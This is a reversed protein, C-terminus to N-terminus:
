TQVGTVRQHGVGVTEKEVLAHQEETQSLRPAGTPRPLSHVMSMLWTSSSHGM